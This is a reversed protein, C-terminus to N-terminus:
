NVISIRITCFKTGQLLSTPFSGVLNVPDQWIDSIISFPLPTGCVGKAAINGMALFLFHFNLLQARKLEQDL